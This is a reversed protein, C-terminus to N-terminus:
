TVDRLPPAGEACWTWSIGTILVGVGGTGSRGWPMDTSESDGARRPRPPLAADSPWVTFRGPRNEPATTGTGPRERHRQRPARLCPVPNVGGGARGGQTALSWQTPLRQDAAIRLRWPRTTCLNVAHLCSLM